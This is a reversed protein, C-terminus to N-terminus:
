TICKNIMNFPYKVILNIESQLTPVSSLAQRGVFTLKEQIQIAVTLLKEAAWQLIECIM